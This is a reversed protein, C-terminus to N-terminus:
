KWRAVYRTTKTDFWTKSFEVQRGQQDWSVREVFGWPKSPDKKIEELILSAIERPNKKAPKSLVLAANTAMEGHSIDNPIEVVVADFNIGEWSHKKALTVVVEVVKKRVTEYLNM